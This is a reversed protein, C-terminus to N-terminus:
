GLTPDNNHITSSEAENDYTEQFHKNSFNMATFIQNPLNPEVIDNTCSIEIENGKEKVKQRKYNERRQLLQQTQENDMRQKRKREYENRVKQHDERSLQSKSNGIKRILVRL